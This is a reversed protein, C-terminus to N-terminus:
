TAGDAYLALRRVFFAGIAAVLCVAVGGIRLAVDVGAMEGVAGLVLAGIWGFSIAWIWAGLVRGRMEDPVHRQLLAWGIADLLATATGIGVLVLLAISLSRMSALGVLLCGFCIMVVIVTRLAVIKFGYSAVIAMGLLAGIGSAFTLTGLGAPGVNMSRDAFGPLLANYSFGFIETMFALMLVAMVVPTKRMIRVGDITESWLGSWRPRPTRLVPIDWVLVAGLLLFIAGLFFPSASGMVQISFGAALAGFLSIMRVGFGHVGIARPTGDRGFIDSILAQTAPVEVTRTAGGVAALVLIVWTIPADSLALGGISLMTVARLGTMFGILRQRPFLDAVAGSFLGLFMSPMNRVAFALTSLFISNTLELVLWGIALRELWESFAITISGFWLRRFRPERLPVPIPILKV